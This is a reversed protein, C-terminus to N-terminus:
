WCAACPLDNPHYDVAGAPAASLGIVLLAAAFALGMRKLM